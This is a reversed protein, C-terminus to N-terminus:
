WALNDKGLVHFPTSIVHKLEDIRRLVALWAILEGCSALRATATLKHNIPKALGVYRSTDLCLGRTLVHQDALCM